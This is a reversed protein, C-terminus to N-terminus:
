KLSINSKLCVVPRLGGFYSNYIDNYVYGSSVRLLYAGQNAAPSALWYYDVTNSGDKLSSFNNAFYLEGGNNKNRNLGIDNTASGSSTRVKYGNENASDCYVEQGPYRANWSDMWLEVTPGGIAKEAKRKGNIEEDLYSTWNNENLLTSACQANPYSTNNKKININFVDSNIKFKSIIESSVDTNFSPLNSGNWNVRYNQGGDAIQM